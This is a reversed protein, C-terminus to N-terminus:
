DGMKPTGKIGVVLGVTAIVLSILISDTLQNFVVAGVMIGLGLGIRKLYAM